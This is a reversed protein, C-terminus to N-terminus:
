ICIAITTSQINYIWGGFIYQIYVSASFAVITLFSRISKSLHPFICCHPTGLIHNHTLSHRTNPRRNFSFCWEDWFPFRCIAHIHTSTHKSTTCFHYHFAKLTSQITKSNKRLASKALCQKYINHTHTQTYTHLTKWSSHHLFFGASMCQSRLLLHRSFLFTFAVVIWILLLRSFSLFLLAITTTAGCKRWICRPTYVFIFCFCKTQRLSRRHRLHFHRFFYCRFSRFYSVICFMAYNHGRNVAGHM